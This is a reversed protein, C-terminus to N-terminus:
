ERRAVRNLYFEFFKTPDTQLGVTANAAKGELARTFGHSDVEVAVAKMQCLSPDLVLAVAMPDFLTPTERNWLRYLAALSNTLPTNQSFIHSRM